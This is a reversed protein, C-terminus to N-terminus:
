FPTNLGLRKLLTQNQERTAFTHCWLREIGVVDGPRILDQILVRVDVEPQGVGGQDDQRFAVVLEVQQGEVFAM